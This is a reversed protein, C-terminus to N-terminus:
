PTGEPAGTWTVTNAGRPTAHSPAADNTTVIGLHARLAKRARSLRLRYAVPSIGLVAAAELTTLGEWVTLALAEQHGESLLRWARGLDVRASAEGDVGPVDVVRSPAIRVALSRRRSEDRGEHLMLNRATTFLWARQDGRGPPLEQFRRWAVAMTEAAIDEAKAPAVRRACFRLVDDFADRFLGAFAEARV